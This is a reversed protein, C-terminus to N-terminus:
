SFTSYNPTAFSFRLVSADRAKIKIKRSGITTKGPETISKANMRNGTSIETIYLPANNSPRDINEPNFSVLGGLAGFYLEGSASKASSNYFFSSNVVKLQDIYTNEIQDSDTKMSALGRSTSIWMTGNNDAISACAINSPLGNEESIQFTNEPNEIPMRLIGSGETSIWLNGANDEPTEGFNTLIENIDKSYLSQVWEQIYRHVRVFRSVNIMMTRPQSM